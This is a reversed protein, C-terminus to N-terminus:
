VEQYLYFEQSMSPNADFLSSLVHRKSGNGTCHKKIWKTVVHVPFFVRDEPQLIVAAPGLLVVEALNMEFTEDPKASYYCARVVIHRAEKPISADVTVSKMIEKRTGADPNVVNVLAPNGMKSCFDSISNKPVVDALLKAATPCSHGVRHGPCMCLSCLAQRRRSDKMAEVRRENVSKKRGGGNTGVPRGLRMQESAPQSNQFRNQQTMNQTFLNLHNELVQGLSQESVLTTNGKAIETLKIVAGLLLEKDNRARVGEIAFGLKHCIDLTDRMAIRNCPGTTSEVITGNQQVARPVTTSEVDDGGSGFDDDNGDFSQADSTQPGCNTSIDLQKRQLWRPSWLSSRFCGYLLFLHSCQIRYFSLFKRCPCHQSGNALVITTGNPEVFKNNGDDDVTHIIRRSYSVSSQYLQLAWTSLCRVAEKDSDSNYTLAKAAAQFHRTQILNNREASIDLHRRMLSRIMEAPALVMSGLRQIISSHNSEAPTNGQLELNSHYHRVIHNAFLHRKAHINDELYKSLTDNGAVKARVRELSANYVTEDHAKVMATLDDRYNSWQHLGFEKPWAGIEESLLHHHDLVIKCTTAIGLKSLLTEGALIGDAFIVRIDSLQRGPAMEVTSRILWAYADVSEGITFGECPLCIKKEGDKMAITNIPWGKSNISRGLCDVFLVDGFLEFDRRMVGTQWVFGTVSGDDSRGVRYSFTSDATVMKDLYERIQAIDNQDHLCQDLLSNFQLLSETLFVPNTPDDGNNSLLQQEDDSSVTFTALDTGSKALLRKLKIVFNFLMAHDLATGPPFLPKVMERLMATPVKTGTQFVTLISKIQSEHIAVDLKGAKRKEVSLQSSSPLCGNDHTFCVNSVACKPNSKYNKWDIYKWKLVFPCGVRTTHFKRQKSSPLPDKKARKNKHSNPEECRSCHLSNGNSTISFGKKHAFSRLESRLEAPSDFVNGADFLNTAEMRISELHELESTSYSHTYDTPGVANQQGNNPNHVIDMSADDTSNAPTIAPAATTTDTNNSAM